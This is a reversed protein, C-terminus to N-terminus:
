WDSKGYQYKGTIKINSLWSNKPLKFKLKQGPRLTKTYTKITKMSDRKKITFKYKESKVIIGGGYQTKKLKPTYVYTNGFKFPKNSKILVKSYIKNVNYGGIDDTKWVTLWRHSNTSYMNENDWMNLKVTQTHTESASAIQISFSFAVFLIFLRILIKNKKNM